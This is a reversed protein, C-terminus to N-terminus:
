SRVTLHPLRIRASPDRVTFIMLDCAHSVVSLIDSVTDRNMIVSRGYGRGTLLNDMDAADFVGEPNHLSRVAERVYRRLDENSPENVFSLTAARRHSTRLPTPRYVCLASSVRDGAALGQQPDKSLMSAAAHRPASCGRPSCQRPVPTASSASKATVAKFKAAVEKTRRVFGRNRALGLAEAYAARCTLALRAFAVNDPGVFGFVLRFSARALEHASMTTELFLSAENSVSARPAGPSVGVLRRM